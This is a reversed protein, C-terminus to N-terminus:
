HLLNKKKPELKLYIHDYKLCLRVNFFYNLFMETHYMRNHMRSKHENTYFKIVKIKCIVCQFKKILFFYRIRVELISALNKIKAQANPTLLLDNLVGHFM